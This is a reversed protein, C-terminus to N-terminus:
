VPNDGKNRKYLIYKLHYIYREQHNFSRNNQLYLHKIFYAHSKILEKM